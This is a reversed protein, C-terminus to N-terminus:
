GQIADWFDNEHVLVIQRGAKRYEMAQEVKRGYCAYAWAPNGDAGVILYNLELTVRPCFVGGRGVVMQALEKRTMRRSTGTFCFQREAFVIEPCMACLGSAPKSITDLPLELARHEGYAIFETFFAQLLEHERKDIVGDRLVVTILSEVEDFPYCGKLPSQHEMWATLGLLEEKTIIGDAAIGGLIGHFKQLETKLYCFYQSDSHMRECLWVVDRVEEQDLQGDTLADGLAQYIENFPHRNRFEENENMWSRVASVELASICGDAAVGKLLGELTCLAKELRMPGTFRYYEAADIRQHPTLGSMEANGKMAGASLHSPGSGTRLLAVQQSINQPFPNDRDLSKSFAVQFGGPV